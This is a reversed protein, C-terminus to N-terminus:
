MLLSTVDAVPPQPLPPPRSSVYRLQELAPRRALLRLQPAAAHAHRQPPWWRFPNLVPEDPSGEGKTCLPKSTEVTLGGLLVSPICAKCAKVNPAKSCSKRCLASSLLHATNPPLRLLHPLRLCCCCCRSLPPLMHLQASGIFSGPKAVPLCADFPRWPKM